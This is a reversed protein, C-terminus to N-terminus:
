VHARGIQGDPGAAGSVEIVGAPRFYAWTFEEERTWVLKVPKGAGKALRAAEVAAEGTHKGGYGSGTDPTIVRVSTEPIGFAQALEGRVGFPRQTGTWVTLRDGQWEAVAARPELPAHAIYAINYTAELHAGSGPPAPAAAAQKPRLTEWLADESAPAPLDWEAKILDAAKAAADSTPATVGLFAGDRVVTVGPLAAAAATEASRLKGNWGPARVVRGYVMGDRRIDSTYQHRGTVFNRGDAKPASTGAVTWETRPTEKIADPIERTLKQGKLLQGYGLERGTPGHSVKGNAATLADREVKWEDAALAIFAERAAAAARHLIPAMTPTTRSGFTGMDYPTLDTDAMVLTVSSVPIRLEEAVAQALSTRINQGVETKGTHATVTGNAGFHLWAGIDSPAGRSRGGRGSEQALSDPGLAMVLLGAGLAQFLHRRTLAFDYVPGARLEYREPALAFGPDASYPSQVAPVLAPPPNASITPPLDAMEVAPNQEPRM